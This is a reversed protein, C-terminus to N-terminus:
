DGAAKVALSWDELARVGCSMLYRYTADMEAPARTHDSVDGPPVWIVMAERARSLLVRYSNTM